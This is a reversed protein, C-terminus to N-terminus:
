APEPYALHTLRVLDWLGIGSDEAARALIAEKMSPGVNELAELYDEFKRNEKM